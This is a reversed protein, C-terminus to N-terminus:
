CLAHLLLLKLATVWSARHFLLVQSLPLEDSVLLLVDPPLVHAACLPGGVASLEVSISSLAWALRQHPARSMLAADNRACYRGCAAGM